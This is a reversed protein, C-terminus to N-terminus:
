RLHQLADGSRFDGSRFDHHWHGGLSAESLARDAAKAGVAILLAAAAIVLVTFLGTKVFVDTRTPM